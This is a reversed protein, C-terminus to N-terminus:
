GNVSLLWLRKDVASQFAITRGDGSVAWAGNAFTLPMTSPDTLFRNEGTPIHYYALRQVPNEPEFPVYYLSESDRWRWAGFFPLKAAVAGSVTDLAYIANATLDSQFTQYFLVRQGGPAVSLGRLRDWTGLTFTSSDATDFVSLTTLTRDTQSILLRSGDLWSASIRTGSLIMHADNGNIDSVWISVQPPTAGPVFQGHQEHWLLRSDDTSIAPLFGNTPVAWEVGDSVRRISAQGDGDVIQYTGDPSLFLPPAQGVVNLLSASAADWEFIGAQQGPTGDIAQLRTPDTKNWWFSACCGQV